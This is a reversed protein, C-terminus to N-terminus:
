QGGRRELVEFVPIFTFEESNIDDNDCQLALVNKGPILEHMFGSVNYEETDAVGVLQDPTSIQVTRTRLMEVGNLYAIFPGDCVVSLTMGSVSSPKDIMFDKRAYVTLYNGQMHELYTLSTGTGYGISTRGTQWNSVDSDPLNWNHIPQQIGKFYQWEEGENILVKQPVSGINIQAHASQNFIVSMTFIFFVSMILYFFCNILVPSEDKRVNNFLRRM